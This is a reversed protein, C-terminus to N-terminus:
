LMKHKTHIFFSKKNKYQVLIQGPNIVKHDNSFNNRFEHGLM